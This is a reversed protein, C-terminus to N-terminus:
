IYHKETQKAKRLVSLRIIGGGGALDLKKERIM